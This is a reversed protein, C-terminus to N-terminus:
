RSSQIIDFDSEHLFIDHQDLLVSKKIVGDRILRALKRGVMARPIRTIHVIDGITLETATEFLRMISATQDGEVTRLQDEPTTRPLICKIFTATEITHPERPGM